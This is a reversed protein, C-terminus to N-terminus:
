KLLRVQVACMYLTVTVNYFSRTWARFSRIDVIVLDRSWPTDVNGTVPSVSVIVYAEPGVIVDSIVM